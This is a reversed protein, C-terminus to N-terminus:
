KIGCYVMFQCNKWYNHGTIMYNTFIIVIKLTLKKLNIPFSDPVYDNFDYKELSLSELGIPLDNLLSGNESVDSYGNCNLKLTKLTIPLKDVFKDFIKSNINLYTLFKPLYNISRNFHSSIITLSQLTGPLHKLPESFSDNDITLTRLTKYKSINNVFSCLLTKIHELIHDNLIKPKLFTYKGYLIKRYPSLFKASDLFNFSSKKNLYSLIISVIDYQLYTEM